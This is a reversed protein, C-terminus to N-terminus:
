AEDVIFLDVQKYRDLEAEKNMANVDQQSIVKFDSGEILGYVDALDSRWQNKLSAPVIAIIRKAGKDVYHQIVAGATITKGLGVSDSLIATGLQELKRILIGANRNQFSYLIDQSKGSLLEGQDLEEPFVEMLTKIYTDYPGFTMDGVASNQL